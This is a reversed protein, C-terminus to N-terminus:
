AESTLSHHAFKSRPKVSSWRETAKTGLISMKEDETDIPQPQKCLLIAAKAYNLVTSNVRKSQRIEPLKCPVAAAEHLHNNYSQALQKMIRKVQSKNVIDNRCADATAFKHYGGRLSGSWDEVSARKAVIPKSIPPIFYIQAFDNIRDSYRKHFPPQLQPQQYRPPPPYILSSHYPNSRRSSKHFPHAKDPSVRSVGPLKGLNKRLIELLLYKHRSEAPNLSPQRSHSEM